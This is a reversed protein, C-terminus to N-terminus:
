DPATRAVTALTELAVIRAQAARIEYSRENLDQIAALHAAVAPACFWSLLDFEDLGEQAALAIADCRLAIFANLLHSDRATLRPLAHSSAAAPPEDCDPAPWFSAVRLTM